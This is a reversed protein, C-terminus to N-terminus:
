ERMQLIQLAVAVDLRVQPDTSFPGLISELKTVRYRMTNYHFHQTRAAEAVNLNVDLLVQLTARLDAAAATAQALPGLVEVVFADLEGQDEVQSLLRRVGLRDFYTTSGDGKMRRGVDVAKRARAYADPFAEVETVVRSIGASFSRRGGGSDGRVAALAEEVVESVDSGDEAVPLLAVVQSSFDAVAISRGRREVVQRWAAAFRDQFGRRSRGSVPADGPGPPDLQAVVVVLPRDLEWGLGRAHELVYQPSEARDTLVDRLFDGRYKGEVAVVAQMRTILLAAVTAARELAYVDSARLSRRESLVVLRALETGSAAVHLSRIEGVGFPRPTRMREVRVRGSVDLFESVELSARVDDSLAGAWERGDTSTVLVGVDLVQSVEAAIQDLDGGELVIQTLASHLADIQALVHSQFANLAAYADRLVDDFAVEDPIQVIPFGLDDALALVSEPVQDVYRGLKIAFGALGADHLGRVLALMRNVDLRRSTDLLPFGTTVLLEHPKVWGLVDPVEMVNLGTVTRESGASGALTKAGTLADIAIVASLPLGYTTGPLNHSPDPRDNALRAM